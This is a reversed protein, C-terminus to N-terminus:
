ALKDALLKAVSPRLAKPIQGLVVAQIVEDQQGFWEFVRRQVESERLGTRQAVGQVVADIAQESSCTAAVDQAPLPSDMLAEKKAIPAAERTTECAVQAPTQEPPAADCGAAARDTDAAAKPEPKGEAREAVQVPSSTSAAAKGATSQTDCPSDGPEEGVASASATLKPKLRRVALAPEPFDVPSAAAPEYPQTTTLRLSKRRTLQLFSPSTVRAALIGSIASAGSLWANGDWIRSYHERVPHRGPLRLWHTEDAAGEAPEGPILRPQEYLEHDAYDSVLRQTFALVEALPAAEDLLTLLRYSGDGDLDELLPSFGLDCLKDHWHLVAHFNTGSTVQRDGSSREVEIAFWRATADHSIAPLCVLHQPKAATFHALLQKQEIPEDHLQTRQGAAQKRPPLYSRWGDARNVLHERTWRALSAAQEQWAVALKEQQLLM